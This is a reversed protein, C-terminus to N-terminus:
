AGGGRSRMGKTEDKFGARRARYDDDEGDIEEVENEREYNKEVEVENKGRM